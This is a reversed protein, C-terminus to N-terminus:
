LFQARLPELGWVIVIALIAFIPLSHAVSVSPLWTLDILAGIVIAEWAQYRLALLVICAVAVWWPLVFVAIIGFIAIAVRFYREM